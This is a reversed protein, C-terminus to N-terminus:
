SIGSVGLRRRSVVARGQKLTRAQMAGLRRLARRSSLGFAYGAVLLSGKAGRSVWGRMDSRVQSTWQYKYPEDGRLFDFEAAGEEISARISYAVIASGPGYRAWAQDHGTQYFYVTDGYRFSYVAGIAEGRVLLLHLRLWGNHSFLTAIQRHFDRVRADAFAGDDGRARRVGQHLRFVECMADTVGSGASITQYAVQGDTDKELRRSRSRLNYRVKKTLGSEFEEWTSPLTIFPCHSEWVVRRGVSTQRLLSTILLSESSIGHLRFTDWRGLESIHAAFAASVAEGRDAEAMVDLHDPAAATAGLVSLETYPGLRRDPFRRLALPALGVLERSSPDRATLIWPDVASGFCRMWTSVWEWSLFPNLCESRKILARWPDELLNLDCHDSIVDISLTM